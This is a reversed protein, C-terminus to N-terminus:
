VSRRRLGGVTALGALVVAITAPEPVQSVAQAYISGTFATSGASAIGAVTLSHFGAGLNALSFTLSPSTSGPPLAELDVGDISVGAFSISALPQGFFETLSVVSGYVNSVTALNFFFTAAFPTPGDQASSSGYLAPFPNITGLDGGPLVFSGAQAAGSCLLAVAAIAHKFFSM